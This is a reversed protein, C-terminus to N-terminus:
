CSPQNIRIRKAEFLLFHFFIFHFFIFHLLSLTKKQKKQKQTKTNKVYDCFIAPAYKQFRFRVLWFRGGKQEKEKKRKEKLRGKAAWLQHTRSIWRMMGWSHCHNKSSGIKSFFSFSFSFSFFSCSIEDLFRTKWFFFLFFSSWRTDQGCQARM